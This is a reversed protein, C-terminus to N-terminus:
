ELFPPPWPPFFPKPPIPLGLRELLEVFADWASEFPSETSYVGIVNTEKAEEVIASQPEPTVYGAVDGYSIRYTGVNVTASYEGVGVSIDNVFIEGEVPTTSITLVGTPIITAYTAKISVDKTLEITRTPITSGDEWHFFTYETGGIWVKEPMKVLYAGEKLVATFPTVQEMDNITHTVGQPESDVSLTHEKPIPIAAFVAQLSHSMNMLVSIPNVTYSVGDLVWHDFNYGFSPIATVVATTGETYAYSGPAPSTTGGVTSAIILTHEIPPIVGFNATLTYDRDMIFSIPNETRTVGDIIWHTFRYGLSPIATATATAGDDYEYSAPAPVTTGGLTTGITLVHKPPPAIAEAYAEFEYLYEVMQLYNNKSVLKVYRGDKSFEETEQWGAPNLMGEWVSDGLNAPDDGVYVELGQYAGFRNGQGMAQFLRIKTIKKTAGMDFIIWHPHNVGHRWYTSTSYDIARTAEHRIEEGCKNYVAVPSKWEFMKM